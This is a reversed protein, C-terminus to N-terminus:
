DLERSTVPSVKLKIELSMSPSRKVRVKECHPSFATASVFLDYFGTPIDTRFEGKDDSTLVLDKPIGVNDALYNSGSHDWHIVIYADKIVAGESDVVKGSLSSAFAPLAFLCVALLRLLKM